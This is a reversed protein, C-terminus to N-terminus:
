LIIVFIGGIVLIIIGGIIGISQLINGPQAITPTPTNTGILPLPTPNPTSTPTTTSSIFPTATATPQTTSMRTPTIVQTPTLSPILSPLATPTSTSNLPATTPTPTSTSTLTQTPTLTETPTMTLTPTSTPTPPKGFDATWFWVGEPSLSRGVGIETFDPDEMVDKHGSTSGLWTDFASQGTEECSAINESIKLPSAYGFEALRQALTRGLSDVHDAPLENRQVMDDSMWQAADSLQQSVMLTGLGLSVRHANLINVFNQEEQDLIIQTPTPTEDAARQRTDQSQRILITSVTIGIIIIATSLILLSKQKSFNQSRSINVAM